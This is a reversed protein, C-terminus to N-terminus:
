DGALREVVDRAAPFKALLEAKTGLEFDHFEFPPAVTCGVLAFRTGPYPWAGFWRGAPVNHQPREGAAFGPGLRTRSTAGDPAIEEIVLPGGMYFHWLEDSKIRHLHSKAGEPILFYIATSYRSRYTEAFWGGEPHPKLRLTEILRQATPDLSARVM